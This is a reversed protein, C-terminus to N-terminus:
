EKKVGSNPPATRIPREGPDPRGVKGCWEEYEIWAEESLPYYRRLKGRSDVALNDGAETQYLVHRHLQSEPNVYEGEGYLDERKPMFQLTVAPGAITTGPTWSTVGKIFPDRIGLRALEGAATASGVQERLIRM